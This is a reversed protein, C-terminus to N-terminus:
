EIHHYTVRECDEQIISFGNVLSAATFLLGDQYVAHEPSLRLDREPAFIAGRNTVTGGSVDAANGSAGEITGQDHARWKSAFGFCDM